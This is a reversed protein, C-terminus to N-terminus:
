NRKAALGEYLKHLRSCLSGLPVFRMCPIWEKNNCSQRQLCKCKIPLWITLLYLCFVWSVRWHLKAPRFVSVDLPQLLNTSNPLLSIFIVNDVRSAWFLAGVGGLQGRHHYTARKNGPGRYGASVRGPVMCINILSNFYSNM